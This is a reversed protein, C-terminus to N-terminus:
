KRSLPKQFKFKSSLVLMFVVAFFLLVILLGTYGDFVSGQPINQLEFAVAEPVDASQTTIVNTNGGSLFDGLLFDKALSLIMFGNFAGLLGGLLRSLPSMSEQGITIKGLMYSAAILLILVIIFLQYANEETVVPTADNYARVLDQTSVRAQAESVIVKLLTLLSNVYAIINEAIKPDVIAFNLLILLGSTFVEKAWGRFFGVLGFLGIAIWMIQSYDFTITSM